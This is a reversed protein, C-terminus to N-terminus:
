QIRGVAAREAYRRLEPSIDTRQLFRRVIPETRDPICLYWHGLGHLVSELCSEAKLKLVEEFVHLVADNEADDTGAYMSTIDWWMYCAWNPRNPDSPGGECHGLDNQYVPAILKEYFPVMADIGRRRHAWPLRPDSFVSLHRSSSGSVLFLIGQDIQPHTFRQILGEPEEFLQTIYSLTRATDALEDWEQFYGSEPDRWWWHPDIVPHDFVYRVWEEFSIDDPLRCREWAEM